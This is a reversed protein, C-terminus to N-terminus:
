EIVIIIFIIIIIVFLSDVVFFFLEQKGMWIVFGLVVWELYDVKLELFFIYM